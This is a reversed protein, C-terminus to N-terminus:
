SMERKLWARAFRWKRQVTTISLGFNKAVEDQTFGGFYCYEVVKAQLEDIKALKTLSQDLMIMEESMKSSLFEAESVGVHEPRKGRKAALQERAYEVLVQRMRLAVFGYFHTRSEWDIGERAILRMLAENILATTQLIHGAREGAMNTRALKKLEPDVLPILKSFAHSDGRSWAQLLDTIEHTGNM